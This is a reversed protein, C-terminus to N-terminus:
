TDKRTKLFIHNDISVTKTYAKHWYPMVQHTHYWMAGKTPDAIAGVMVLKALKMYKTYAARGVMLKEDDCTWTFACIKLDDRARIVSRHVVQCASKGWTKVRNMVVYSVAIQGKVSEGRAEHYINAAVCEVEKKNLGDMLRNLRTVKLTDKSAAVYDDAIATANSLVMAGVM